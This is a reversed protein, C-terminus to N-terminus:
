WYIVLPRVSTDQKKKVELGGRPKPCKGEQNRAKGATLKSAEKEILDSNRGEGGWCFFVLSLTELLCILPGRYLVDM